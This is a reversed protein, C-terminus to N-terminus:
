VNLKLKQHKNKKQEIFTSTFFNPTPLKPPSIDKKKPNPNPYHSDSTRSSSICFNFFFIDM